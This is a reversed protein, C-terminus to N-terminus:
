THLIKFVLERTLEGGPSTNGEWGKSRMDYTRLLSIINVLKGAPYRRAAAEYDKVFFPNVKLVSALNQRSKDKTYHLLLLKSFFYYLSVTTLAMPYKKENEAFYKVIRTAKLVDRNGLANQLEFQNFDKSFGIHKEVDEPTITAGPKGIAVILKELENSIKSLDSGLFEALLAAAKPEIRFNQKSAYGAIWGPIQNDYLKKSEYWVAKKELTKFFKQRKDPKKYKYNIVLLTSPQPQEVYALLEALSKMEQAEKLVVVQHPAMMPFRRALDSVQAAESDKGYLISQNFSQEAESLVNRTIYSTVLDIYYPEDGWLFYVPKYSKNKLDGIVQEYTM